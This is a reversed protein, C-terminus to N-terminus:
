PNREERREEEGVELASLLDVIGPGNAGSGFHGISEV